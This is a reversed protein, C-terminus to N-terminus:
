KRLGADTATGEQEPPLNSRILPNKEISQVVGDIRQVGERIEAVGRKVSTTIQPIDRSGEQVNELIKDIRNTYINEVDELIKGIRDLEAYVHEILKRTKLLEGVNGKGENIEKTLTEVNATVQEVNALIKHATDLATFLPGNPDHLKAAIDALDQTAAIVKKATEEIKFEALLDSISKKAKSQIESGESLIAADATGGKIAVYESGIFTPSEVTAISDTRIRPAYDELISFRVRVKNEDLTIKDVKGIDANSMKVPAGEKLNYSEDFVAYFSVYHKFWDKGRGIVIVSVLLLLLMVVMFAGVIREQKRFTLEM